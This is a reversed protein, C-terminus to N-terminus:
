HYEILSGTQGLKYLNIYTMYAKINLSLFNGFNCINLFKLGLCHGHDDDDDYYVGCDSSSLQEFFLVYQLDM